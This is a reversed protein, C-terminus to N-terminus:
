TQRDESGTGACFDVDTGSLIVEPFVKGAKGAEGVGTECFLAVPTVSVPDNKADAGAIDGGASSTGLFGM